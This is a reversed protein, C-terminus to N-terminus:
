PPLPATGAHAGLPGAPEALTATDGAQQALLLSLMWPRMWERHNERPPYKDRLDALAEGAAAHDGAVLLREARAQHWALLMANEDEPVCADLAQNGEAPRGRRLETTARFGCNFFIGVHKPGVSHRRLKDSRELVDIAELDSSCVDSSWDSIRM